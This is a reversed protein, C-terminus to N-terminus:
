ALAKLYDINGPALEAAKRLAEMSEPFSSCGSLHYWAEADRPDIETVVRWCGNECTVDVPDAYDDHMSHQAEALKVAAAKKDPADAIRLRAMQMFDAVAAEHEKAAAARQEGGAEPRDARLEMIVHVGGRADYADANKPDLRIAETYDALAEECKGLLSYAFGRRLLAMVNAPQKELVANYKVVADEPTESPDAFTPQRLPLPSPSAADARGAMMFLAWACFILLDAALVVTRKCLMENM